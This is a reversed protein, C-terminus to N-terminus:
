EDLRYGTQALASRINALNIEITVQRGELAGSTCNSYVTV